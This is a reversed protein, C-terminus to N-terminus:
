EKWLNLVRCLAEARQPATAHWIHATGVAGQDRYVVDFLRKIYRNRQEPTLTKEAEHLADLDNCYDPCARQILAAAAREHTEGKALPWCMSNTSKDEGSWNARFGKPAYVRVEKKGWVTWDWGCAEAIAINIEETKM